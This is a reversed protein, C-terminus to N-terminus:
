KGPEPGEVEFDGECHPCTVLMRERGSRNLRVYMDQLYGLDSAYLGEIVKPNIYELSGLRTIVRSLLIVLIYGPNQQVRVDKLPAIEDFATALRMTGSQHRRGEGDVYGRPLDFPFEVAQPEVV